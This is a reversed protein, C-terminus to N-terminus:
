FKIDVGLLFNTGAQPFYYAWTQEIGNEYWLGGYGNSEYKNNFLNNIQLRIGLGEFKGIVPNFDLRLNNVLYPNIKRNNSSTNDFFQRGVYKSLLHVNIWDTIDLSFDSSMIISPSYAIDVTGLFTSDYTSSWDSTNYDTYYATFGNIKNRSLTLNINWDVSRAPKIGATLEIGTRYSKRVNTMIPYGVNSLEGTPILQDKYYMAYLNLGLSLRDLSMDYGAEADYLREPRPTAKIDGAAEKFDSRTPERNAVSVSLYANHRPSFALYIGAKPNFFNFIHTQTIDKFDDDPGSMSYDIHRYQIDAFGTLLQSFQYNIKGYISTESKKAKNLYWQYDKETNGANRMWIIRGFHDGDYINSGGGIVVNTKGKRYRASYVIGYFDNSLWKRRILDTITLKLTDITIDPLGYESYPQDERYEEYYGKGHTYHIAAHLSLNENLGLSYILQYHDQWYNDSENDYYKINGYEDTYEGAPNYRRDISVMDSPVGWWSIGTHEEGLLINAKLISRKTKYMSSIAASRNKSGTRKIYGDSRVDSYRIQVAFRDALFGTGVMVMNRFTNYSGATSNIETFPKIEPSVTQINVSAGFAGAGNSSTGVGRQVQVNDVSSALDPLDVWFVQQSEADNLPIGDVTVNIRSGDTGRIRMGTYGIGTGAESTEVLSPTMSILFPFDQGNNQSRISQLNVNTYAVPTRTGARTASIIVEETTTVSPILSVNVEEVGTVEVEKIVQEFGTFSYRIHYEGKAPVRILYTGKNDSYAGLSTNMITIAADPLIVGKDDTIRGKIIFERNDQGHIYHVTILLFMMTLLIKTKM